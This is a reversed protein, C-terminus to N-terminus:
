FSNVPSNWYCFGWFSDRLITCSAPQKTPPIDRYPITPCASSHICYTTM